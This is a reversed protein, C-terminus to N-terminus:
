IKFLSRDFNIEDLKRMKLGKNIYHFLQKAIDINANDWKANKAAFLHAQSKLIVGDDLIKLDNARLTGGTSSIDVILEASGAAPAGETAGVSEVIRYETVGHEAFFETTLHLFKTAIRMRHGHRSRYDSAVDNLDEMTAVDIWARPVALVVDAHSFELPTVSYVQENYNAINERVLDLGTIGLNIAGSALEKSVESSSLFAIEVNEIEKLKAQYNRIGGSRTITLGSQTFLQDCHEQIRGKSPLGIVLNRM